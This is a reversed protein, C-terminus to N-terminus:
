AAKNNDINCAKNLIHCNLKKLYQLLWHYTMSIWLFPCWIIPLLMFFVLLLHEEEIGLNIHFHQTLKIIWKKLFENRRINTLRVDWFTQWCLDLSQLINKWRRGNKVSLLHHYILSYTLLIITNSVLRTQHVSKM